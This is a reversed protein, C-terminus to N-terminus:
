CSSKEYPVGSAKTKSLMVFEEAQTPHIGVTSTLDTKTAGLRVAVAFGQMIEAANPGCIHLGVVRENDLRNCIAKIYCQPADPLGDRGVRHAGQMELTDYAVHYVEIGDEGYKCAADSESLGVSAYELPTFVATPVNDYEAVERSSAFLRRALLQGARIAVPTLEPGHEVVDGIAFVNPVNTANTQKDTFVKGTRASYRVGANDLGLQSTSPKRGTALLVTDFRDTQEKGDQDVYTVTLLDNSKEIKSPRCQYLFETGHAEMHRGIRQAMDQDFGRLLVSRVM